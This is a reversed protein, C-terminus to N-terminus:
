GEIIDLYITKMHLINVGASFAIANDQYYTYNCQMESIAYRISDVDNAVLIGNPANSSILESCGGVDSLILPLESSAAELGSMPLGESDSILAFVDYKEFDSFSPVEGLMKVNGICSNFLSGGGVITLEVNSMDKIASILLGPRKPHELRGVFLVRLMDESYKERVKLKYVSNIGLSLRSESIGIVDRAVMYDHKSICWITDTLFSLAREIKIFISKLKGGQYVCSWGHSVYVCRFRLFLRALRSYLGSNASSSVVIDVESTRLTSILKLLAIPSLRSNLGPIYYFKANPTNESLWGESSTIIIIRFDDSFLKVQDRLWVQAGGVVSKTVVFAVTKM